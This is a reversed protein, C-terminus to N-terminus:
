LNKIISIIKDYDRRRMSLTHGLEDTFHDLKETDVEIAGLMRAKIEVAVERKAEEVLKGIDVIQDYSLLHGSTGDDSHYTIIKRIKNLIEEKNKM